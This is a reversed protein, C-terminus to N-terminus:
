NKAPLPLSASAETEAVGALVAALRALGASVGTVSATAASGPTSNDANVIASRRSMHSLLPSEFLPLFSSSTARRESDARPGGWDDNVRSSRASFRSRAPFRLRGSM